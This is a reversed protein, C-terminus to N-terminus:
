PKWFSWKTGNFVILRYYRSGTAPTMFAMMGPAPNKIDTFSEVIPLVMAKELSELVLVGDATSSEAGIIAKGEDNVGPENAPQDVLFVSVDGSNGSLDVWGNDVAADKNNYFKVRADTPTSADLILTGPVLGTGAPKNRVTPLTIGKRQDAAFELLVNTKNTATGVNDGIIVHQAYTLLSGATFVSIIIKKM